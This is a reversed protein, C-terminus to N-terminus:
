NMINIQWYAMNRNMKTLQKNGFVAGTMGGFFRGVSMTNKANKDMLEELAEGLPTDGAEFAGFAKKMFEKTTFEKIGFSEHIENLLNTKGQAYPDTKQNNYVVENVDIGSVVFLPKRVFQDWLKFRTAGEMDPANKGAIVISLVASIIKKRNDMAWQGINDRSFHRQDPKEMNPNITIPYIRTAFDGIFHINNGTFMWLVSSPVEITKNEGLKRGGYIDTSMAKALRSSRINSNEQINDFLVCSHGEQLIALIYKGLEEDDNSWDSAAAPRNFSAYSILQALTTKGSSQVPSVIGFGPMGSDDTISPRQIATMLAAVAVARDLDSQFPFEAFVTETLYRYADKPDMQTLKLKHHIVTFLGTRKDYGPKQMLEWNNNIFPHEVIGTIPQFNENDAEGVMHLIRIPCEIDQGTPSLFMIDKEMRGALTYFPKTYHRIIPMKPYDMGLDDARAMQRISKPKGMGISLLSGGMVFVQPEKGSGALAEAALKAAEGTNTQDIEIEVFGAAQREESKRKRLEEKQEDLKEQRAIKITKKVANIGISLKESIARIINELDVPNFSLVMEAFDQQIESVNASSVWDYVQDFTPNDVIDVASDVSREIDDFRIQWENLRNDDSIERKAANMAGELMSKVTNPPVRRNILSLALKNLENHYNESTLIKEVGAALDYAEKRNSLPISESKGDEKEIVVSPIWFLKGDKKVYGVFDDIPDEGGICIRKQIYLPQSCTYISEDIINGWGKHKNYEKAWQKVKLNHIPEDLWFFIHAKLDSTTLGYSSSFQYIYDANHFESPLEENIFREIILKGDDNGFKGDCKYGDVDIAFFQLDQDIITPPENDKNARKRRLMDTKNIGDVFKGHIMFVPYDMNELITEYLDKLNEVPIGFGTFRKGAQYSASIEWGTDTKTFEKTAIGRGIPSMFNAETM